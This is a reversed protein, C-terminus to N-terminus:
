IAESFCNTAKSRAFQFDQSQTALALTKTLASQISTLKNGSDNMQYNWHSRNTKQIGLEKM